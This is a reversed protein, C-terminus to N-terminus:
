YVQSTEDEEVPTVHQGASLLIRESVDTVFFASEATFGDNADASAAEGQTRTLDDILFAFLLKWSNVEFAFM